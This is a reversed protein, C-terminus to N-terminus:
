LTGAVFPKVQISSFGFPSVARVQLYYTQGLNMSLGTLQHGYNELGINTWNKVSVDDATLGIAAQYQFLSAHTLSNSFSFVPSATLSQSGPTVLTVDTVPYPLSLEYQSRHGNILIKWNILDGTGNTASGDYVKLTWYGESSEGYFANSLMVTDAELASGELKSNINLLRSETGSPSVLHIALDGPSPHDTTIQIQVSEIIYDHGVWIKEEQPFNSEDSITRGILDGSSYYWAGAQNITQEFEGLTSLDYNIAARVAEDADIRGFGYWNSFWINAANKVWKYDYVYGSLGFGWPHSITNFIPDYDIIDATVALIHKVDRWTLDPNAELMLAIVGSAVPAASSTGNFTSTYNCLPNLLHSGYDFETQNIDRYSAGANCGQIDTTIMAPEILGDEGGPASIWLGSGPTSYSASYGEANVAAVIVKYPTALNSHANTNGSSKVVCNPDTSPLCVLYSAAYGNGASQVYLSGKGDRGHNIGVLLAEEATSEEAYFITDSYGYSYNFIDFDGTMQDIYKALRSEDTESSSPTYIYRFASFKSAPAVGRSGIGNWGTASSLGAVSTGHYDNNSPLPSTDHWYLSDNFSYNRHESALTNNILDPHDIDVGTDSVAIRIGRGLINLQEHVPKLNIDHGSNGPYSSFSSQGTNNLHWAYLALPDDQTGSSGGTSGGSTGGTNGAQPRSVTGDDKVCSICLILIILSLGFKM